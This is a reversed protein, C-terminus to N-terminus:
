LLTRNKENSNLIDGDISSQNLGLHVLEHIMTFLRRSHSKESSLIAIIPLTEYYLAM